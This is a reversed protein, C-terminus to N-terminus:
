RAGDGLLEVYREVALRRFWPEQQGWLPFADLSLSEPDVDGDNLRTQVEDRFAVLFELQQELLSRDGAPGHGPVVREIPWELLQELRAIGGDVDVDGM